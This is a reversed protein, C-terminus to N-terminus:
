TACSPHSILDARSLKHEALSRASLGPRLRSSPDEPLPEAASNYLEYFFFDVLQSQVAPPQARLARLDPVNYIAKWLTAQATGLLHCFMALCVPQSCLQWSVRGSSKPIGDSELSQGTAQHLARLLHAREELKLTWFATATAQLSAPAIKLHCSSGSCRCHQAATRHRQAVRGPDMGGQEYKSFSRAAESRCSVDLLVAGITGCDFNLNAPQVESEEWPGPSSVIGQHQSPEPSHIGPWPGPSSALASEDALGKRAKKRCGSDRDWPNPSSDWPGQNDLAAMNM